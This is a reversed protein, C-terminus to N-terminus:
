TGPQVSQEIAFIVYDCLFLKSSDFAEHVAVSGGRVM